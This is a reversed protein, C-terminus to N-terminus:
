DVVEVEFLESLVRGDSLTAQAEVDYKRGVIGGSLLARATFGSSSTGSTAVSTSSATWAVSSITPGAATPRWILEGDRVDGQAPWVVPNIGGSRGDNQAAYLRGNPVPPQVVAGTAYSRNRERPPVARLGLNAVLEITEGARKRITTTM